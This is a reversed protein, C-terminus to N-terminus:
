RIVSLIQDSKSPSAAIPGSNTMRRRGSRNVQDIMAATANAWNAAEDFHRTYRFLYAFSAAVYLEPHDTLLWNTANSGSLVPITKWYTLEVDGSSPPPGLLMTEGEIAFVVPVGTATTPYDERLKSVTVQQLRVKSTGNWYATRVGWFDAPLNAVESTFAITAQEEREPSFVTKQFGAEAYAIANPIVDTLDTRIMWTALEAKLETWNTPIAM